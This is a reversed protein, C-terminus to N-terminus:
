KVSLSFQQPIIVTVKGCGPCVHRYGKGPPIVMHSPPQHEPHRCRKHDPLDFFGSKKNKEPMEGRGYDGLWKKM